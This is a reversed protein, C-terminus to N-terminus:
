QRERYVIGGQKFIMTIHGNLEEVLQSFPRRAHWLGNLGNDTRDVKRGQTERHGTVPRRQGPPGTCAEIQNVGDVFGLIGRMRRGQEFPAAIQGSEGVLGFTRGKEAKFSVGDVAKVVEKGPLFVGRKYFYKKVGTFEIM